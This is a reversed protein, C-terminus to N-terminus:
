TKEGKKKAFGKSSGVFGDITSTGRIRCQDSPLKSPYQIEIVDIFLESFKAVKQTSLYSQLITIEKVFYTSNRRMWFQVTILASNQRSRRM